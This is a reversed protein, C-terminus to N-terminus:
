NNCYENQVETFIADVEDDNMDAEVPFAYSTERLYERTVDDAHPQTSWYLHELNRFTTAANTEGSRYQEILSSRRGALMLDVGKPILVTEMQYPPNSSDQEGM